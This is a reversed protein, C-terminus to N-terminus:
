TRNPDTKVAFGTDSDLNFLGFTNTFKFSQDWASEQDTINYTTIYTPRLFGFIPRGLTDAAAQGTGRAQSRAPSPWSLLVASMMLLWAVALERSQPEPCVM